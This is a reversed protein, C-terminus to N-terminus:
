FMNNEVISIYKRDDDGELVLVFLGFIRILRREKVNEEVFCRSECREELEM